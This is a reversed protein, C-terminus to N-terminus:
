TDTGGLIELSSQWQNCRNHVSSLTKLFMDINLNPKWALLNTELLDSFGLIGNDVHTELM